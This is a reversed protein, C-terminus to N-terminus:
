GTTRDLKHFGAGPNVGGGTVGPETMEFHIGGGYTPPHPPPPPARRCGPPARACRRSCATRSSGTRRTSSRGRSRRSRGGRARRGAATTGSPAATTRWRIGTTSRPSATSRRSSRSPTRVQNPNPNPNPIPNTVRVYKEKLQSFADTGSPGLDVMDVGEAEVARRVLDRVSHFWM